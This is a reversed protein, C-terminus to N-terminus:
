GGGWDRLVQGGGARLHDSAAKILLEAARALAADGMIRRLAKMCGM